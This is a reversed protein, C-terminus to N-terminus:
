SVAMVAPGTIRLLRFPLLYGDHGRLLLSLHLM